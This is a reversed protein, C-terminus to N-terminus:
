NQLKIDNINYKKTNEFVKLLTSGIEKGENYIKFRYNGEKEFGLNVLEIL